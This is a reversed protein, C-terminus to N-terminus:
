APRLPDADMRSIVVEAELGARLRRRLRKLWGRETNTHGAVLVACNRARAHLVDHHKLEGTIFLTCGQDIAPDLLEAGSGACLGVVEHRRRRDADDNAFRDTGLHDRMRDTITGITAGHDLVVRRGAGIGRRPRETQRYIEIPPEEYPHLSRLHEIAIALNHDGCVMELRIEDVRELRGREGRVPNSADGGFYTGVAAVEISCLEYEGIVGAGAAALGHRIREISDAPGYTVVKVRETAPLELAPVIARRDGAGLGDALWDNVGGEAADAATHPSHIAIGAAIAALLIRGGADEDTIRKRATFIPPHYAVIADVQKRIAEALVAETLDICLMVRGLPHDRDGVLLGVNDWSEGLESPAIEQMLDVLQQIGSRSTM